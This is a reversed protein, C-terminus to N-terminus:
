LPFPQIFHHGMARTHVCKCVRARKYGHSFVGAGRQTGGTRGRATSPLRGLQLMASHHKKPESHLIHYDPATLTLFLLFIWEGIRTAGGKTHPAPPALSRTATPRASRCTANILHQLMPVCSRRSQGPRASARAQLAEPFLMDPLHGIHAPDWTRSRTGM